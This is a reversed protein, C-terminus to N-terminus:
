TQQRGRGRETERTAKKFDTAKKNRMKCSFENRDDSEVAQGKWTDASRLIHEEPTLQGRELSM